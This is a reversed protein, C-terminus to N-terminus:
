HITGFTPSSGVGGNCPGSKSDPADAMGGSRCPDIDVSVLIIPSATALLPFADLISGVALDLRSIAQRPEGFSIFEVAHSGARFRIVNSVRAAPKSFLM